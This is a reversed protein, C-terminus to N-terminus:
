DRESKKPPEVETASGGAVLRKLEDASAHKPSELTDGYRGVTEGKENQYECSLKVKM